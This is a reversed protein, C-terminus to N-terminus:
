KKEGNAHFLNTPGRKPREPSMEEAQNTEASVRTTNRNIVGRRPPTHDSIEQSVNAIHRGYAGMDDGTLM